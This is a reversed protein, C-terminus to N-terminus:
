INAGRRGPEMEPVLPIIRLREFRPAGADSSYIQYLYEGTIYRIGSERWGRETREKEEQTVPILEWDREIHLQLDGTISYISLRPCDPQSHMLRGDPFPIIRDAATFPVPSYGRERSQFYKHGELEFLVRVVELQDNLLAYRTKRLSLDQSDFVPGEALFQHDRLYYFRSYLSRISSYNIDGLLEGDISFRTIRSNMQDTLWFERGEEAWFVDLINQFEGPGSGRGGLQCELQGDPSTIYIEYRRTDVLVIRGDPAILSRPAVSFMQWEPEGEDIGLILDSELEFLPEDYKPGGVTRVLRVGDIDLHEVRHGTRKTCSPVFLVVAIIWLLPSRM